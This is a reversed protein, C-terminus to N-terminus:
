KANKRAERRKCNEKHTVLELHDPNCCLRNKCKHDIDHRHPIIGEFCTYIVRHVAMTVGSISIRGYGRGGVGKSETGSTSGQWVWCGKDPCTWTRNIIRTILKMRRCM